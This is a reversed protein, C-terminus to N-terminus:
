LQTQGRDRETRMWAVFRRSVQPLERDTRTCLYYNRGDDLSRESLVVLRGNAIDDEILPLRCLAAGLGAVAAARALMGDEFLPGSLHRDGARMGAARFWNLWHDRSEDHVLPLVALAEEDPLRKRDQLLAPSAVPVVAGSLFLESKYGLWAGAGFRVSIDAADSSYNRNQAYTVRVDVDRNQRSFGPLRPILWSVAFLPIASISIEHASARFRLQSTATRLLFFAPLISELYERGDATLALGRGHRETLKTGVFEELQALRHSVASATLGLEDAAATVSGRRAFAEFAKAANLPLLDSEHALKM